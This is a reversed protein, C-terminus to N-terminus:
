TVVGSISTLKGNVDRNFVKTVTKGPLHFAVSLLKGNGDRNFIKYDGNAYDVRSLKGLTKTFTPSSPAVQRFQLAIRSALSAIQSVLSM